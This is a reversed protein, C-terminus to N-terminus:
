SRWLYPFLWILLASILFDVGLLTQLQDAELPSAVLLNVHNTVGLLLPPLLIPLGMVAIVTNSNRAKSAMAGVFTLASSLGWATLLITLIAPFKLEPQGFFLSFVFFCITCIILTFLFNYVLKGFLFVHPDLSTYYYMDRNRSEMTYSKLVASLTTFVVIIWYFVVWFKDSIDGAIMFIVFSSSLVYLVISSLGYVNRLDLYYEKKLLHWISHLSTPM